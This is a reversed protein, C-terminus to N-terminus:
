HEEEKRNKKDTEKYRTPEQMALLNVHKSRIVILLFFFVFLFISIDQSIFSPSLPSLFVFLSAFMKSPRYHATSIYESWKSTPFLLCSFIFSSSSLYEEFCHRLMMWLAVNIAYLHFFICKRWWMKKDNKEKM